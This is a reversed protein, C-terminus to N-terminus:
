FNLHGGFQWDRPLQSTQSTIQGFTASGTAWTANPNSFTVKNWVNSVDAEFVFTGFDKPLPFSRRLSADLNQTGPNWLNLPRTRPSNGILYQQLTAPTPATSVNAPAIFATKDFYQIATCGPGVGINCATTGSPGTGYSGNVRANHSTFDSSAQNLDPMCQGQGPYTTASCLSSIVAVPIGSSYTYINSLQWGGALTRVLMSNAGLGGKGFPLKYVYYGHVSQPTSVTTISRDIRDQHWSQGGGSIAAGPINFGSRFTGDDGINKSYTYNINFTLGHVPRQSLTIQLSNYAANLSNAGYTDTVGSYQPYAVLGQAITATTSLAAAAQFFAPINLGPIAAQAKAVNAPTAAANLIPKTNTTDLVGGLGALYVPNLQNAWYGRSNSGTNLFHSQDGVFNVGLTMDKTISREFGVNYFNLEPARDSLYPDAYSVTSATVFKGTSPNVYFGTNLLQAAAPAPATPYSYGKGFLDTNALALTTFTTGNNLYFSPGAGSGTTVEAPGTATTNFGLQGTGTGAGGRGGVGGAQSFVEGFGLRFVTKDNVTYAIGIRPGFNKMYNNVPTRCGCSVGTGGYNGAFQIQGLTGTLSNTQNPNLFSWRDKVEEFSPLYDWRLGMDVTLKANVKWSDMVYPSIPKYRGGTESVYDLGLTPTGGVAGLLFSAYSYGSNATSLANSNAAFNATSNATYPLDLGGTLTAPNAVNDQQWQYTIGFTLSHKGKLWQLNDVIAYNNPTTVQTSVSGASGRWTTLATSFLTTSAFSAGFFEQGAQGGPLNTVGLKGEEWAAVGFTADHINQFFRTYGYKFQNVIHENVTYTDEIQYNKPYINALDGGIYPGPINPSGYNNLYNVVGMAGVSSIRQKKSLDYDVRWDITHNDYGTPFGGLYNNAIVLPNTPAPLFSQNALAIPSLYSTPIVNYTPVGNKTGQFATRTCVTSSACTTSTPDFLVATNPAATGSLGGTGVGGNLETFDGARMLTTPLTFTSYAAGARAHFKDYAVFFFLKDGTHPVKWGFSASLENRHEVAKPQCTARPGQNIVNSGVTVTTAIANCATYAAGTAPNIGTLTAWKGTFSWADFITNRVFDSIQGHPKLGGSKMTFNEAGAGMYEAPPTSTIVQFQDVADVDLSESVVRNDGQQNITEAPMGDLYLQGIYNGTGGIIPLRAGGQAGPALNGFQTPDRQLSGTLMLPLNSFTENEMVLSISADATDLVPPASSVTVVETAEGLSLVANFNLTGLADVVLNQQKLIKFGSAVVQVTYTGPPLPAITFTGSSSSTREISVNTATNIATIKANPVAAGTSDAVTGEITGEGATQAMVLSPMAFLATAFLILIYAVSRATIAPTRRSDTTNRIM